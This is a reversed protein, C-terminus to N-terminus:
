FSDVPVTQRHYNLGPSIRIERGLRARRKSTFDRRTLVAHKAGNLSMRLKKRKEKKKPPPNLTGNGAEAANRGRGGSRETGQGRLEPKCPWSNSFSRLLCLATQMVRISPQASSFLKENV